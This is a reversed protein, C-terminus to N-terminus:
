GRHKNKIQLNIIKKQSPKMKNKHQEKIKEIQTKSNKVIENVKTLNENQMTNSNHKLISVEEKLSKIQENYCNSNNKSVEKLEELQKMLNFNESKLEENEKKLYMIENEKEGIKQKSKSKLEEESIEYKKLALNYENQLKTVENQFSMKLRDLNNQLAILKYQLENKEKAHITKLENVFERTYPMTDDPISVNDSIEYTNQMQEEQENHEKNIFDSLSCRQHSTKISLSHVISDCRACFNHFPSCSPCTFSAPETKCRECQIQSSM